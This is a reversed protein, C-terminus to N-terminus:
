VDSRASKSRAYDTQSIITIKGLYQAMLLSYRIHGRLINVYRKHTKNLYSKQENTEKIVDDWIVKYADNQERNWKRKDGHKERFQKQLFAYYDLRMQKIDDVQIPLNSLLL